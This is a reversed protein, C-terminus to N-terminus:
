ALLNGSPLAASAALPWKRDVRSASAAGSGKRVTAFPFAGTGVHLPCLMAPVLVMLLHTSPQNIKNNTLCRMYSPLLTCLLRGHSRSEDRQVLAPLVRMGPREPPGIATTLFLQYGWFPKGHSISVLSLLRNDMDQHNLKSGCGLSGFSSHLKPTTRGVRTSDPNWM